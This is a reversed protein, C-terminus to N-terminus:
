EQKRVGAKFAAIQDPSGLVLVDDGELLKTDGGPNLLRVGGRNIGAIQVGFARNLALEALSRNDLECGVPLTVTDMRVEDFNSVPRAGSAQELFKKGAAV